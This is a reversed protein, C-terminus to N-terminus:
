VMKEATCCLFIHGFFLYRNNKVYPKDSNIVIITRAQAAAISLMVPLLM